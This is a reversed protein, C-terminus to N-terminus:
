NQEWDQIPMLMDDLVCVKNLPQLTDVYSDKWGYLAVEFCVFDTFIGDIMDRDDILTLQLYYKDFMFLKRYGYYMSNYQYPIRFPKWFDLRTLRGSLYEEKIWPSIVKCIDTGYLKYIHEYYGMMTTTAPRMDFYKIENKENFLEAFHNCLYDFLQEGRKHFRDWSSVSM